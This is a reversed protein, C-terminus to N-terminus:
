LKDLCLIAQQINEATSVPISFEDDNLNTKFRLIKLKHNKLHELLLNNGFSRGQKLIILGDFTLKEVSTTVEYSGDTFVFYIPVKNTFHSKATAKISFKIKINSEDSNAIICSLIKNDGKVTILM